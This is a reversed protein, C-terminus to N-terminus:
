RFNNSVGDAMESLGLTKSKRPTFPLSTTTTLPPRDPVHFNQRSAHQGQSANLQYRGSWNQMPQEWRSVDLVFDRSILGTGLAGNTASPPVYDYASTCQPKGPEVVYMTLQMTM